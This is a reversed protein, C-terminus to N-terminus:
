SQSAKLARQGEEPSWVGERVLLAAAAAQEAARKSPGSAQAATGSAVNVSVTFQPGHDPGERAVLQYVPLGLAREQSWEQLASKADRPLEALAAFQGAWERQFFRKAADLGGDCYIAAILAECADALVGQGVASGTARVYLALGLERAVAACAEKRVLANLRPALEGETARPFRELLAEAALLGLVRDGLFELRENIPAAAGSTSAHTLAESLLRLDEFRYDLRAQLADLGASDAPQSLSDSHVHPQPSHALEM